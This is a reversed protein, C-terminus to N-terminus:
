KVGWVLFANGYGEDCMWPHKGTRKKNQDLLKELHKVLEKENESSMLSFPFDISHSIMPVPYVGSVNINRLGLKRLTKLYVSSNADSRYIQQKEVGKDEINKQYSKIIKNIWEYESQINDTYKPVIYGFWIGGRDLVRIQESIVKEVEEFHELLGVSFIIDFSNDAFELDLADGVKFTATLENKQFIQKAIEIVNESLDLLTCDYGADSFYCSLSGRGCGVELVRKGSNYNPEDKMIENFLTWHSRFALQIQNEVPGRIWHSYYSENRMKWNRDFSSGDGNKKM